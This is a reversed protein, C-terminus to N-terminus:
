YPTSEAALFVAGSLVESIVSPLSANAAELADLRKADNDCRDDLDGQRNIANSLSQKASQVARDSTEM